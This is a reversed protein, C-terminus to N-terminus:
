RAAALLPAFPDNPELDALTAGAAVDQLHVADLGLAKHSTAVWAGTPLKTWGEWSFEIGKVPLIQVWLRWAVPRGDDGLIWLYKDGPTVGGSAYSVLLARKGDVTGRARSTGGDFAKVVPNLWFSDNIWLKYARDVLAAREAEDTVETDGNWARGRKDGTVLLVRHKGWEVRALGRAKDWLHRRNQVHWRLAGTRAWADGDVARIMEHALADAEAGPTTPTSAHRLAAWLVGNAIELVLVIWGLVRVLRRM